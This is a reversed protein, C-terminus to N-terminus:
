RGKGHRLVEDVVADFILAPVLSLCAYGPAGWWWASTSAAATVSGVGVLLLATACFLRMHWPRRDGDDVHPEPESM